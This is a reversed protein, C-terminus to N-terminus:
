RLVNAEQVAIQPTPGEVAALLTRANADVSAETGVAALEQMEGRQLPETEPGGFERDRLVEFGAFEDPQHRLVLQRTTCTTKAIYGLALCFMGRSWANRLVHHREATVPEPTTPFARPYLTLDDFRWRGSSQTRAPLAGSLVPNISASKALGM